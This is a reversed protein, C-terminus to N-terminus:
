CVSLVICHININSFGMIAITKQSKYKGQKYVIKRFGLLPAISNKIDFNLAGQNIEILYKM